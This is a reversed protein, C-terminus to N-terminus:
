NIMVKGFTYVGLDNSIKVYYTGASLPGKNLEFQDNSFDKVLVLEGILNYMEVHLNQGLGNVTIQTQQTFPNPVISLADKIYIDRIGTTGNGYSDVTITRSSSSSDCDNVAILSVTYSGNSNYTHATTNSASSDVQGDGFDWYYTTVNIDPCLFNFLSDSNAFGFNAIPNDIETLQISSAIATCGNSDIVSLNYTGVQNAVLTDIPNTGNWSFTTFMGDAMLSVDQGACFSYDGTASLIEVTTQAPEPITFEFVKECDYINKIYAYYTGAALNNKSGGTSGDFWEVSYPGKEGQVGLTIAGDGGGFCTVPSITPIVAYSIFAKTLSFSDIINNEDNIVDYSVTNSDISFKVYLNDIISKLIEPHNAFQTNGGVDGAGGSTIYMVGNKEAQEYLHSHGVLVFDVGYQEFLPVLHQRAMLNGEYQYYDGGVASPINYDLGWYNTWPGEHFYVFVWKQTNCQLENVLFDYQASGPRFDTWWRQSNPLQNIPFPTPDFPTIVDLAIFKADGWTFSYYRESSDVNNHPLHFELEYTAGNDAYTDHNGISPFHCEHALMKSTTGNNYVDFFIEDYDDGGSASSIHPVGGQDVDGCIVAFEADDAEMLAGITAQMGSNYGCDGYQIFSFEQDTEDKATFFYESALPTNGSLVTYYYQTDKILNKITLAHRKIARIEELTDILASPSLGYAVKGIADNQTKWAIITSSSTTSQIYPFRNLQAELQYSILLLITFLLYRM